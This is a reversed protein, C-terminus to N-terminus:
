NFYRGHDMVLGPGVANGAISTGAGRSTVPLSHEACAEVISQVQDIDRPFAVAAPPVRYISADSSYMARALSSTTVEVRHLALIKEVARVSRTSVATRPEIRSTM